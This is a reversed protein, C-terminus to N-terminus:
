ETRRQLYLYVRYRKDTEASQTRTGSETPNSVFKIRDYGLLTSLLINGPSLASDAVTTTHADFTVTTLNAVASTSDIVSNNLIYGLVYVLSDNSTVITKLDSVGAIPFYETTDTAANGAFDLKEYIKYAKNYERPKRGQIDGAFGGARALPYIYLRFYKSATTGGHADGSQSMLIQIQDYGLLTTLAIATCVGKSGSGKVTVASDITAAATTLGTTSNRLKYQIVLDMSDESTWMLRLDSAGKINILDTTDGSTTAPLAGKYILSTQNLVPTTTQSLGVSFMFLVTMLVALYKM